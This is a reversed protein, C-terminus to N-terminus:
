PLYLLVPLDAVYRLMEIGEAVPLALLMVSADRFTTLVLRPRIEMSDADHWRAHVSLWRPVSRKYAVYTGPFQESLYAEERRIVSDLIAGAAAALLAGMIFSGSTMGIGLAGVVSFVYLPNRSLSYPGDTVLERKKRGGIYLTCWTRGVVAIAICLFGAVEITEEGTGEGPWAPAVTFFAAVFTAAVLWLARKRAHQVRSLSTPAINM